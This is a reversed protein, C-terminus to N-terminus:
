GARRKKPKRAKAKKSVRATAAPAIEEPKEAVVRKEVIRGEARLQKVHDRGTPTLWYVVGPVGGTKGDRPIQASSLLELAELSGLAQDREAASYRSMQPSLERRKMRGGNNTLLQM